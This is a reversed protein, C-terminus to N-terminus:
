LVDKYFNRIKLCVFDLQKYALNPNIPLSIISKSIDNTNPFTEFIKKNFLYPLPKKYYIISNIKNSILYKNLKNRINKNVLISFVHFNTSVNKKIFQFKIPLNKLKKKYYNAFVNRKKNLKITEKLNIKLVEAQFEDMRFNNGFNLFKDKHPHLGYNRYSKIESYLKKNKTLIAGADGLAWLNKTPYFSFVSAHGQMGTFKGDIKSFHAQSADEIIFINKNKIKKKLKKVDFVNGFLHVPMIIKTNKNIKKLVQDVDMLFTEKDVDVFKVKYGFNKIAMVVPIPSFAPIIIESKFNKKCILDVLTSIGTSASSVGVAFSKDHLKGFKKEFSYVSQSNIFKKSYIVNKLKNQFIKINKHNIPYHNRDVIM